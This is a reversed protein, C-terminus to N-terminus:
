AKRAWSILINQKLLASSRVVKKLIELEYKMYQHLFM